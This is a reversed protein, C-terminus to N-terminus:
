PGVHLRVYNVDLGVFLPWTEITRDGSLCSMDPRMTTPQSERADAMNGSVCVAPQLFLRKDFGANTGPPPAAVIM